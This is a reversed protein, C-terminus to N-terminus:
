YTPFRDNCRSSTNLLYHLFSLFMLARDSIRVAENTFHFTRPQDSTEARSLVAKLSNSPSAHPLKYWYWYNKQWVMYPWHMNPVESDSRVFSTIQQDTDNLKWIFVFPLISIRPGQNRWNTFKSNCSRYRLHYSYKKKGKLYSKVIVCATSLNIIM